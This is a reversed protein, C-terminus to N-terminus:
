TLWPLTLHDMLQTDILDELLVLTCEVLAKSIMGDADHSAVSINEM